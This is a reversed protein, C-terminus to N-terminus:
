VEARAHWFFRGTTSVQARMGHRAFVAEVQERTYYVKVVTFERGDNLKRHEWTREPRKPGQDMAGAESDPLTDIAFVRGGPGLAGRVTELFTDLKEPPVHSLWYALFVLDFVGDPRWQFLDARVYTVRDCRTKSRNIEIVEPSADVATVHGAVACLRGTWNGTGCAVELATECRPLAEVERRLTEVEAFWLRNWEPGRDYRGRREFWEDYEPARARYYAVQEDVIRERM